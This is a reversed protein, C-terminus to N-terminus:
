SKALDPQQWLAGGSAPGLPPLWTCHSHFFGHSRKRKKATPQPGGQNAEAKGKAMVGLEAMAVAAATRAQEPVDQGRQCVGLFSITVELDGSLLRMCLSIVLFGGPLPEVGKQVCCWSRERAGTRRGGPYLKRHTGPCTSAPFATDGVRLGALPGPTGVGLEVTGPPTLSLSDRGRQAEGAGERCHAHQSPQILGALTLGGLLLSVNRPSDWPRVGQAPSPFSLDLHDSLERFPQPSGFLSLFHAPPCTHSLM